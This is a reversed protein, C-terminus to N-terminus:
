TRASAQDVQRPIEEAGYSNGGGPVIGAPGFLQRGWLFAGRLYLGLSVAGFSVPLGPDLLEERRTRRHNLGIRPLNSQVDYDDATASHTTLDCHRKLSLAM